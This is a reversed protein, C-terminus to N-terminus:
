IFFGFMWNGTEIDTFISVRVRDGEKFLTFLMAVISGM